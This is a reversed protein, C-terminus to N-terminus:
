YVYALGDLLLVGSFIQVGLYRMAAQYAAKTGARLILFVSSIATIEWFIFLTMLDGALTAAVAAGAYALAMGDHLRDDTHLAYIANLFSAILFALAFIFSLSDVRYLIMDISLVSVVSLDTGREALTLLLLAVVPAAVMIAQRVRQAPIFCGAFGVLVLLLGPNIQGLVGIM